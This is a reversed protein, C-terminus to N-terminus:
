IARFLKEMIAQLLNEDNVALLTGENSISVVTLQEKNEASMLILYKINELEMVTVLKFARAIGSQDTLEIIDNVGIPQENQTNEEMYKTVKEIIKYDNVPILNEEDLKYISITDRNDKPSLIIYAENDIMIQAEIEYDDLNDSQKTIGLKERLIKNVLGKDNEIVFTHKDRKLVIFESMKDNSVAIAYMNRNILIDDVIITFNSFKGDDRRITLTNASDKKSTIFENIDFLIHSDQVIIFKDKIQKLPIVMNEDETNVALLYEQNKVLIKNIIKLKIKEGEDNIAVIALPNNFVENIKDFKEQVKELEDGEVQKYNGKDNLFFIFENLNENVPAILYEKGHIKFGTIVPVDITQGSVTDIVLLAKPFNM